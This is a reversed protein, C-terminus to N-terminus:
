QDVVGAVGLEGELLARDEGVQQEGVLDVAGRGLGLGGEQLGHLFALDGDVAGWAAVWFGTSYSPV